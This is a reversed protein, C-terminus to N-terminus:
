ALGTRIGANQGRRGDKKLRVPWGLLFCTEVQKRNQKTPCRPPNHRHCRGCTSRLGGTWAALDLTLPGINVRAGPRAVRRSGHAAKGVLAGGARVLQPDM